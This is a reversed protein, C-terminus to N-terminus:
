CVNISRGRGRWHGKWNCSDVVARTRPSGGETGTSTSSLTLTGRKMVLVLHYNQVTDSFTGCIGMGHKFRSSSVQGLPPSLKGLTVCFTWNLSVKM